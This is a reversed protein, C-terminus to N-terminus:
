VRSTVPEFGTDGLVMVVQLFVTERIKESENFLEHRGKEIFKIETNSFKAQIFKLNYKWVVINDSTGQIVKVPRAIGKTDCIRHNWEFLAGVWNLSIKKAQLPDEYKVFRM